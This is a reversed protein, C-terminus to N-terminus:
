VVRKYMDLAKERQAEYDVIPKPYKINTYNKWEDNWKHIAKSPVDQLEPIWKKIYKADPDHKCQEAAMNLAINDQIRLDRRFIFLGNELM